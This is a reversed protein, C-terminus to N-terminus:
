KGLIGVLLSGSATVYHRTENLIRFKLELAREAENRHSIKASITLEDNLYCPHLFNIQTSMLVSRKGPFEMGVFHSLLGNLFAGHVIPGEYGFSRAYDTDTHLPNTDSFAECFAKWSEASIRYRFQAENGEKLNEFPIDNSTTM